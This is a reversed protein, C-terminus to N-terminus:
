GNDPDPAFVFLQGSDLHWKDDEFRFQAQKILIHLKGRNSGLELIFSLEEASKPSYGQHPHSSDFGKEALWDTFNIQDIMEDSEDHIALQQGNNVHELILTNGDLELELGKYGSYRHLQTSYFRGAGGIEFSTENELNLNIYRLSGPAPLPSAGIHLTIARGFQYASMNEKNWGPLEPLEDPLQEVWKQFPELGYYDRLYSIMSLLQDYETSPIAHPNQKLEGEALWGEATLMKELRSQQSQQGIHRPSLPGAMCVLLTGCLSIPIMRFSSQRRLAYYLSIGFLWLALVLGSYRLETFGYDGIRRNLALLLVVSLPLVLPFYLRWFSKAWPIQSNNHSLPWMLLATFGGIVSLVFVPYGVMGDPWSWQIAVKLLYLYLIGFYLVVLPLLIFKCLFQIWVPVEVYENRLESIAPIGGLFLATHFFFAFFLWVRFYVDDDVRVNFLENISVIALATGVYFVASYFATIVFRALLTKNFEWMANGDLRAIITPLFAIALHLVLLICALRVFFTGHFDSGFHTNLTIGYLILLLIAVPTPLRKWPSDRSALAESIFSALIFLPLGLGTTVLLAHDHHSFGAFYVFLGASILALPFRILVVKFAKGTDIFFQLNLRKM